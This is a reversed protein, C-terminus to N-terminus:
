SLGAKVKADQATAVQQIFSTPVPDSKKGVFQMVVLARGDTFILVAVSKGQAVGRIATGGDGIPATSAKAGTIGQKAASVSQAAAAQAQDPSALVLVTDGLSRGGTATFAVTGGSGQPPAAATGAKVGPLPVDSATLLLSTYDTTSPSSVASTPTTSNTPETSSGGSSSSSCAALSVALAAAGAGILARSATVM